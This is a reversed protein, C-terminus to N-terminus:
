IEQLAPTVNNWIYGMFCSKILIKSAAIDFQTIWIQM